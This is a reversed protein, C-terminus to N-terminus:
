RRVIAVFDRVTKRESISFPKGEDAFWFASSSGGDLNMARWIKFDNSLSAESLLAAFQALSIESCIGLAARGGRAVAVFTRRAERTDDLGRVKAGLDVLFPGCEIAADLPRKRSFEGLRAIEVGRPSASLVGTLLRARVLRAITKGDVVRLGIPAFNPDFYGGNVGALYDGRMADALSQNGNPNDVVRLTCRAPDFLALDVNATAGTSPNQLVVHRHELGTAASPETQASVIKWEARTATAVFLFLLLAASSKAM